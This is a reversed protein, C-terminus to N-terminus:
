HDGTGDFNIESIACDSYKEGPYVELIKFTLVTKEGQLSKITGLKFHQSYHSDILHLNAYLEQNVFLAMKKVRANDLWTKLSKSYGNYITIETIALMDTLEFNMHLEEGIGLGDVGEVWATSFDFDHANAATYSNGSQDSLESSARINNPGTACYWSCGLEGTFYPGEHYLLENEMLQQQEPTMDEYAVEDEILRHYEESLAKHKALSDPNLNPHNSLWPHLERVQASLPMISVWILVVILLNKM